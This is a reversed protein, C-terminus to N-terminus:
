VAETHANASDCSLILRALGYGMPRINSVDNCVWLGVKLQLYVFLTFNPYPFAAKSCSNDTPIKLHHNM